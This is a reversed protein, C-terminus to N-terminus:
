GDLANALRCFEGVTLTEGRRTPDIGHAELNLGLSKLSARLMKRRQGFAAATIREIAEFRAPFSPEVYPTLTVVTSTVKPPPTFARADVNFALETACLWQTLVSLRGYAKTGPSATLRDAVERQFMLTMSELSASQKLAEVLIVTSVNYPLNSVLRRPGASFESYILETADAAIIEM